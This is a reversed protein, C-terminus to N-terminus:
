GGGESVRGGEKKGLGEGRKFRSVAWPGKKLCDARRYRNKMFKGGRFIPNELSRVIQIKTIVSFFVQKYVKKTM